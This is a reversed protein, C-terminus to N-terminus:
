EPAALNPSARQGCRESRSGLQHFQQLLDCGNNFLATTAGGTWVGASISGMITGSARSGFVPRNRRAAGYMSRKRLPSSNGHDALHGHLASPVDPGDALAACTVEGYRRETM